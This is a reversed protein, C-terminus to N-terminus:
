AAQLKLPKIYLKDEGLEASVGPIPESQKLILDKLVSKNLEKKIIIAEPHETECFSLASTNDTIELRDPLKRFSATGTPLSLTKSKHLKSVENKVYPELLFSLYSISDKDQHTASELWADIRAKYENALTSRQDIRAEAELIQSVAWSAKNLTDITFTESEETQFSISTKVNEFDPFLINSIKQISPLNDTKITQEPDTEICPLSNNM